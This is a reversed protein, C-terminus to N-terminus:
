PLTPLPTKGKAAFEKWTIIGDSEWSYRLGVRSDVSKLSGYDGVKQFLDEYLAEDSKVLDIQEPSAHNDLWWDMIAVLITECGLNNLFEGKKGSYYEPNRVYYDGRPSPVFEPILERDSLTEAVCQIAGSKAREVAKIENWDASQVHVRAHFEKGIIDCSELYHTHVIGSRKYSGALDAIRDSPQFEYGTRCKLTKLYASLQDTNVVSVEYSPRAEDGVTFSLSGANIAQCLEVPDKYIGFHDDLQIISRKDKAEIRTVGGGDKRGFAKPDHTFHFSNNNGETNIFKM